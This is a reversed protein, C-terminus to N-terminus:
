WGKGRGFGFRGSQQTKGPTFELHQDRLLCIAALFGESVDTFGRGTILHPINKKVGRGNSTLRLRSNQNRLRFWTPVCKTLLTHLKSAVPPRRRSCAAPSSARWMMIRGRFSGFAEKLSFGVEVWRSQPVFIMEM